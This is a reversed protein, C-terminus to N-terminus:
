AVVKLVLKGISQRSEMWRHAEGAEALPFVRGIRLKLWHKAIGQLVEQSRRAVDEGNAASNFLTGGSVMLSKPMLSNPVIPDAVGSAMGFIVVHGFVAAAELDGPFTSKSVGDLILQAGRGETIRKVEAVFDQTTYMIVHDAGAQKVLDAKELNSVTGIVTAGLHKAWQVLLLGVGGAAAHILVVDKKHIPRHDHVLYHATMGQLPFAAGEEFSMKDPLPILKWADVANYEAYTGIQGTFAVRAGRRVGKVQAGIDAVVGAGELGPTYPLPVGYQGKRQYIDVFNVGAAHMQVLVQEPGFQPMPEAESLKLVSADGHSTVRIAKM